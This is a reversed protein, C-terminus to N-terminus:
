FSSIYSRRFQLLYPSIIIAYVIKSPFGSLFLGRPVCISNVHINRFLFETQSSFENPESFTWHRAPRFASSFTLKRYFVPLKKLLWSVMWKSLFCEAERPTYPSYEPALFSCPCFTQWAPAFGLSLLAIPMETPLWVSLLCYSRPNISCHVSDTTVTHLSIGKFPGIPISSLNVPYYHPFLAGIFRHRPVGQLCADGCLGRVKRVPFYRVESLLNKQINRDFFLIFVM